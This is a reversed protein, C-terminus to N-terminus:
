KTPEISKEKVIDYGKGAALGTVIGAIVANPIGLVFAGGIGLGLSLLEYVPFGGADLKVVFPIRKFIQILSPILLVLIGGSEGIQKVLTDM